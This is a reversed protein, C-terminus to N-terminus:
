EGVMLVGKGTPSTTRSVRLAELRLIGFCQTGGLLLFTAGRRLESGCETVRTESCSAQAWHRALKTLKQGEERSLAADFGELFLPEKIKIRMRKILGLLCLLFLDVGGKEGEEM